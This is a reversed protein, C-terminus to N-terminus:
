QEKQIKAMAAVAQGLAIGGDNPPLLSHRLVHFGEKELKEECLRLLLQNQFVGGSLACTSLGTRAAAEKCGALIQQALIGHFVYALKDSPTNRLKEEIIYQVLYQTPLAFRGEQQEKLTFLRKDNELIEAIDRELRAQEQAEEYAEAAFELVTAAEGEFTSSLRIGLIASRFLM